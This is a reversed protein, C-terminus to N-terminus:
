VNSLGYSQCYLVLCCVGSLLAHMLALLYQVMKLFCSWELRSSLMICLDLRWQIFISFGPEQGREAGGFFSMEFYTIVM